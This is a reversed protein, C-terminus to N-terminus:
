ASCWGRGGRCAPPCRPSPARARTRAIRPKRSRCSRRPPRRGRAACSSRAAPVRLRAVRARRARPVPEAARARSERVGRLDLRGGRAREVVYSATGFRAVNRCLFAIRGRSRDATIRVYITIEGAVTLTTASGLWGLPATRHRLAPERHRAPGARIRAEGPARELRLTEPSVAVLTLMVSRPGRAAATAACAITSSRTPWRRARSGAWAMSATARPRAGTEGRRHYRVLEQYFAVAARMRREVDFRRMLRDRDGHRRDRRTSRSRRPRRACASSCVAGAGRDIGFSARAPGDGGGPRRRPGRVRRRPTCTSSRAAAVDGREALRRSARARGADPARRRRARARLDASM